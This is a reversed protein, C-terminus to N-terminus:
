PVVAFPRNRGIRYIRFDSDLTFIRNLGDREAVRVLTADALDMLRPGYKRMVSRIAAVDSSDLPLITVARREVMALLADQERRSGVVHVAETIVPWTTALPAPLTHAVRACTAHDQDTRQVLAILPGADVLWAPTV